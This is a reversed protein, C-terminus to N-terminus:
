EGESYGAPQDQASNDIVEKLKATLDSLRYPKQIFGALGKGIFRQTVDQGNYGSSVIVCVDNRVRRMERFTEEGDMHPMTLDLIVCDIEEHRERFIDLAERGDSSTIVTYGAKELMAKGIDRISAEDDVLLLTGKLITDQENEDSVALPEPDGEVSPILIKFSTGQGLESYVKVTGGHGRIIGLVASLGLGRGTAKTTFFPDFLKSLTEEDMGNGTDSVELYVYRGDPLQDNMFTTSLYERDCEMLNTTISIVGSTRDMADSANTVLNMIIQRIQSPDAEITPLDNYLNYKIVANKSISIDLLHTMDRIIENLDLRIIQFTGKGSYALMQKTLDAANRTAKEIEHLSSVAPSGPAIDLLALDAYGLIAMLINNFDHAIGGALVGLSELKQTHQIQAELKVSAKEANLKDTVDLGIGGLMDNGSEGKYIRFKHIQLFREEGSSDVVKQVDISYNRDFADRDHRILSHAEDMPFCESTPKGIWSDDANFAKRMFQNIYIYRSESDKLFVAGPLQDMFSRFRKESEILERESQKRRSIDRVYVVVRKGAPTDIVRARTEVPVTTGDRRLNEGEIFSEGDSMLKDVIEQMMQLRDEPLLDAVFKGILEDKRYGLMECAAENCDLIEGEISEMYIADMSAEVLTRYREESEKLAQEALKRDNTNMDM